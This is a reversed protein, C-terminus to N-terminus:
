RYRESGPFPRAFSHRNQWVARLLERYVGDVDDRNRYTTIVTAAGAASLGLNRLRRHIHPVPRPFRPLTVPVAQAAQLARAKEFIANMRANYRESKTMHRWGPFRPKGNATKTM